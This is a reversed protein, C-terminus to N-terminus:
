KWLVCPAGEGGVEAGMIETAGSIDSTVASEDRRGWTLPRSMRPAVWWSATLARLFAPLQMLIVTRRSPGGGPSAGPGSPGRSSRSAPVPCCGDFWSPWVALGGDASLSSPEKDLLISATTQLPLSVTPPKAPIANNKVVARTSKERATERSRLRFLRSLPVLPHRFWFFVRQLISLM